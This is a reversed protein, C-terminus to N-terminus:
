ISSAKKARSQLSLQRQPESDHRRGRKVEAEKEEGDQEEEILEALM